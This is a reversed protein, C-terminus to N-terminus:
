KDVRVFLLSDYLIVRVQGLESSHRRGIYKNFRKINLALFFIDYKAIVKICYENCREVTITRTILFNM